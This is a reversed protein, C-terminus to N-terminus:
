AVRLGDATESLRIEKVPCQSTVQISFHDKKYGSPLRFMLEDTIIRSAIVENGSFLTVSVLNLPPADPPIALACGNIFQGNYEEDNYGGGLAYALAVTMPNVILAANAASIEAINANILAAEAASIALDFEVKGAGINIPRPFVWEKSRWSGQLAIKAPSDWISIGEATGCYLEGDSVDAYLASIQPTATTLNTGDFILTSTSGLNTTYTVYIRSNAAECIMTGPNLLEWEDRTFWPDTFISVGQTGAYVLGHKSAYIVGDGISLVSRKSLCPYMGKADEGTMSAPEVGTAIFPMGATAMVVSSGFVAIGVGNYGSALQYAPPWAHPQYPESFCELNNVFGCLSGSPHVCLGRLGVPPPEWGTTLLDDGAILTDVLTDNYTTTAVAIGAANVLQFAGTSGSTRYLNKTMSVTNWPTKRAWTTEAVISAGTVDFAAASYIGTVTRWVTPASGFAVEDGARLWHKASASNTFRTATATGAGSNAPATDMASIAWTDDVKGTVQASIPSPGSEEGLASMFTYCYFRTVAAGTGGSASVGPATQPTPIGLTLENALLPYNSGGGFVASTYTAMKPPGDGTWCFRSEVDTALPVRVCNVDIPWSFWASASAGNRAKFISLPSVAKPTLPKYHFAPARLPRLEGSQIKVNEAYQGASDPLLRKGTKPILGSFPTLKIM